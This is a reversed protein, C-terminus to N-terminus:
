IHRKPLKQRIWGGIMAINGFFCCYVNTHMLLLDLFCLGLEAINLEDSLNRSLYVTKFTLEFETMHDPLFFPSLHCPSKLQTMCAHVYMCTCALHHPKKNSMRPIM